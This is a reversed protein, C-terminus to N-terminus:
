MLASIFSMDAVGAPECQQLITRQEDILFCSIGAAISFALVFRASRVSNVASQTTSSRHPSVRGSITPMSQFEPM